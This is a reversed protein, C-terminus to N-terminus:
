HIATRLRWPRCVTLLWMLMIAYLELALRSITSSFNEDGGIPHGLFRPRSGFAVRRLSPLIPHNMVAEDHGFTEAERPGIFCQSAICGDWSSM